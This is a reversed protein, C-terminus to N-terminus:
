LFSLTYLSKVLPKVKKVITNRTASLLGPLSFRFGYLQRLGTAWGAKYAEVGRLHDFFGARKEIADVMCYYLHIKGPSFREMSAEFSPLYYYFVGRHLFGLHWSIPQDDLRLESLHVLGVRLGEKLLNEHFNPARFANPWRGRHACLLKDLSSKSELIQGQGYAFYSLRGNEELRRIQRRVDERLSKKLSRVLSEGDSQKSLDTFPCPEGDQWYEGMGQAIERIGSIDVMDCDNRWRHQIEEHLASWFSSYDITRDSVVLPDHYDFDGHGLAILLRQGASKWDRRWLLLPFFITCGEKRAILYRPELNWIRRYASLWARGLAPHNFVHSENAQSLWQEWQKEFGPSSVEDWTTLWEFKWNSIPIKEM